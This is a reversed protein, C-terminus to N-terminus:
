KGPWQVCEKALKLTEDGYSDENEQLIACCIPSHRLEFKFSNRWGQIDRDKLFTPFALVADYADLRMEAVMAMKNYDPSEKTIKKGERFYPRLSPDELLLRNASTVEQVMLQYTQVLATRRSKQFSFFAILVSTLSVGLSALSVITSNDSM